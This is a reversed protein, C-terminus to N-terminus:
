NTARQPHSELPDEDEAEKKEPRVVREGGTAMELNWGAVRWESRWRAKAVAAKARRATLHTLLWLRDKEAAAKAAAMKEAAMQKVAAKAPEAAAQEM